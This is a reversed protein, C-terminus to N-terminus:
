PTTAECLKTAKNWRCDAQKKKMLPEDNNWDSKKCITRGTKTSADIAACFQAQSCGRADVVAGAPTDACADAGDRVGDGDADATAAALEATLTAVQSQADALDNECQVLETNVVPTVTLVYQGSVGDLAGVFVTYHGDYATTIPISLTVPEGAAPAVAYGLLTLGTTGLPDDVPAPDTIFTQHRVASTGTDWGGYVAIALRVDFENNPDDALTITMGTLGQARLDDLPSFHVLGYDLGHGWGQNGNDPDTWSKGGVALVRDVPLNPENEANYAEVQQLLSGAAAPAVGTQITRSGEVGHLGAYWMVPLATVIGDIPGNTWVAGDTAPNGDAGNTSGGLGSGYGALNYTAHAFVAPATALTAILSACALTRRITIDRITM